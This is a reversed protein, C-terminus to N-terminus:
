QDPVIQFVVSSSGQATSAPLATAEATASAESTTASVATAQPQNAQANPAATAVVLPIATIPGSPATNNTFALNFLALGATAVGVLLTLGTIFINKTSM